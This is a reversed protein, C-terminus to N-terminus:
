GTMSSIKFSAYKRPLLGFELMADVVRQLRLADLSLPFSPLAVLAATQAPIGLFSQMAHEVAARDTDAIQQGQALARVFAKLTNPYKQAWSETVAYGQIPFNATAGQDLDALEQVGYQEEAFTVFPEPAPAAEIRGEGLARGATPITVNSEFRVQSPSLGYGKLLSDVLLTAIDNRQSVSVTKGRLDTVTSLGSHARVLLALENPQLVSAEAIIRLRAHDRVENNIYTVYDASTIDYSGREQGNIAAQSNQAMNITVNLGQRAFLGDMKAIYLGASDIAPIADVVIGAKEPAPAPDTGSSCGTALVMIAAAAVVLSLRVHRFM